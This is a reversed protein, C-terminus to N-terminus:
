VDVIGVGRLRAKIEERQKVTLNFNISNDDGSSPRIYGKIRMLGEWFKFRTTWDEIDRVWDGDRDYVGRKAQIGEKAVSFLLEDTIGAKQMGIEKQKTTEVPSTQLSSEVVPVLSVSTSHTERVSDTDSPM